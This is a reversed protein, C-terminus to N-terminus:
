APADGTGNVSRRREDVAALDSEALALLRGTPLEETRRAAAAQPDVLTIDGDLRLLKIRGLRAVLHISILM